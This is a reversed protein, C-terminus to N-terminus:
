LRTTFLGDLSGQKITGGLTVSQPWIVVSAIGTPVTSRGVGASRVTPRRRESAARPRIAADALLASSAVAAIFLLILCAAGADPGFMIV